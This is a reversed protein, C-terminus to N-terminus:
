WPSTVIWSANLSYLYRVAIVLVSWVVARTFWLEDGEDGEDSSVYPSKSWHEIPPCSCDYAHTKHKVCWYDSCDRCHIWIASM